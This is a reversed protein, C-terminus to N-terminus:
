RAKELLTAGKETEFQTYGTLRFEKQWRTLIAQEDARDADDMLIAAGPTLREYFVPLAPYRVMSSPNGWQPPGDVTLMDIDTLHEFTRQDYWLWNSRGFRQAKLPAHIVEAIDDLGHARLNERTAEAFHAEHEIAVVRGSGQVRLAYASILTSIGSSAEVILRPQRQRIQQSIITAFDPSIAYGRMPPLPAKFDFENYLAMLNQVQRFSQQIERHLSEMEAQMREAETISPKAKLRRRLLLFAAMAGLIALISVDNKQTSM